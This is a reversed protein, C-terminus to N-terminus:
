FLHFMLDNVALKPPFINVFVETFVGNSKEIFKIWNLNQDM